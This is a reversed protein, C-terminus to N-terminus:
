HAAAAGSSSRASTATRAAPDMFDNIVAIAGHRVVLAHVAHAHLESDLTDKGYLVIAPAYNAATPV